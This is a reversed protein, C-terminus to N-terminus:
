YETNNNILLSTELLTHLHELDTITENDYMSRVKPSSISAEIIDCLAQATESQVLFNLKEITNTDM